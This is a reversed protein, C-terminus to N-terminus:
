ARIGGDSVSSELEIPEDPVVRRFEFWEGNGPNTSPKLDCKEVALPMGTSEGVFIWFRM